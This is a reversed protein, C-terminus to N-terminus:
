KKCFEMRLWWDSGDGSGCVERFGAAEFLQKSFIDKDNVVAILKGMSDSAWRSALGDIVEKFYQVAAEGGQSVDVVMHDIIKSRYHVVGKEDTEVGYRLGVCVRYNCWKENPISASDTDAEGEHYHVSEHIDDSWCYIFQRRSKAYDLLDETTWVTGVVAVGRELELESALKISVNCSETLRTTMLV